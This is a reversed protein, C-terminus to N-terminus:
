RAGLLGLFAGWPDPKPTKLWFSKDVDGGDVLLWGAATKVDPSVQFDGQFNLCLSMWTGAWLSLNIHLLPGSGGGERMERMQEGDETLQM